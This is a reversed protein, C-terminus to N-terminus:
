RKRKPKTGPVFDLASGDIDTGLFKEIKSSYFRVREWWYDERDIGPDGTLHSEALMADIVARDTGRSRLAAIVPARSPYPDIMERVFVGTDSDPQWADLDEAGPRPPLPGTLTPSVGVGDLLWPVGVGLVAALSSVTKAAPRTRAGKVLKGITGNSIGARLELSKMDPVQGEDRRPLCHIAYWVRDGLTAMWFSYDAPCGM